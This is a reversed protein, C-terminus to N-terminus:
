GCRRADYWRRGMVQDDRTWDTARWDPDAPGPLSGDATALVADAIRAAGEPCLHLGDVASLPVAAGEPTTISPRFRGDPGALLAGADVFATGPVEAAAQRYAVNLESFGLSHLPDAVPTMGVWVVSTGRAAVAELWPIVVRDRYNDRWDPRAPDVQENEGDTLISGEWVGIMFIVTEGLEAFAAASSEIDEARRPLEPYLTFVAEAGAPGFAARLAPTLSAMMSDGALGLPPQPGNVAATPAPGSPPTAAPEAGSGSCAAGLLLAVLFFGM